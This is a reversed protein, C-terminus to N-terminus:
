SLLKGFGHGERRTQDAARDRQARDIQRATRTQESPNGCLHLAYLEGEEGATFQKQQELDRLRIRQDESLGRARSNPPSIDVM